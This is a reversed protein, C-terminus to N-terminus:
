YWANSGVHAECFREQFFTCVLLTQGLQSLDSNHVYTYNHSCMYIVTVSDDSSWTWCYFYWFNRLCFFPPLLNRETVVLSDVSYTLHMVSSFVFSILIEKSSWILWGQSSSAIIFNAPCFIGPNCASAYDVPSNLVLLSSTIGKIILMSISAQFTSIDELFNAFFYSIVHLFHVPSFM